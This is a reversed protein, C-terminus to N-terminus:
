ELTPVLPEVDEENGITDITQAPLEFNNRVPVPVQIRPQPHLKKYVVIADTLVFPKPMMDDNRKAMMFLPNTLLDFSSELMELEPRMDKPLSFEFVLPENDVVYYSLLRQGKRRYYSGVQGLPEAGNARLNHIQAKPNAFIDYRNVSRNPQIRIKLHRYDDIVTDRLFTIAPEPLTRILAESTMTIPSNYKSSLPLSGLASADRPKELYTQTWPDLTRDYTAWVAQDKEADYVYLLSNPRAKGPQFGSNLHAHILFGISGVLAIIGLILKFRFNAFIPLLLGFILATLVTTGVLLKMGLGVPFMVVLPAIIVLAVSSLGINLAASSHQSIVFFALMLTGAISPLIFFSAGPLFIALGLNVLLWLFMPAIYYNVARADSDTSSYFLFCVGLSLLIFAAIYAHGNYPFGQLIDGYHPYLAALAKWGFFGIVACTALVGMILLFGRGIHAPVLLRKGIGVFVTLLFILTTAGLLIFNWGFPYHVFTYPINFYVHDTADPLDALNADCLYGLMPMLYSGQHALSERSLNSVDDQATHYNFHSDIFAFNYGPIDGNERFITLDTDNPLMKYISYMLSNAVPYAPGAASFAQVLGANGSDTELLMYSPGSTGRAEFNLVVQTDQAWKHEKVFLAAGNLGLEEADTFLLIIDNLHPKRAYLHARIGELLTAVGSADDAAGKSASHPASDYHSLLLVAQGQGSGKIRAMINRCRVVNGWDTLTTGHQENVELGMGRLQRVIYDGSRRHQESGSYHPATALNQVHVM